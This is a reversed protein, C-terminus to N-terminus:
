LDFSSRGPDTEYEVGKSKTKTKKTKKKKELMKEAKKQSKQIEKAAKKEIAGKKRQEESAAEAETRLREKELKQLKM